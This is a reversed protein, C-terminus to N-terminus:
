SLPCENEVYELSKRSTAWSTALISTFFSCVFHCKLIQEMCMLMNVSVQGNRKVMINDSHRDAVGLVYTAVCYGACSLTFENIAKNLKDAPKNHEKLWSLLSGKKFPSTASFMGKEKQINAITEAHRVVEIMGLSKEMSICNYINM